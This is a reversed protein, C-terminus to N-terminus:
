REGKLERLINQVMSKTTINTNKKNTKINESFDAESLKEIFKQLKIYQENPMIYESM